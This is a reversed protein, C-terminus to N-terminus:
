VATLPSFSERYSAPTLGTVKRFERTFHPQDAYGCAFGVGAISDRTRLLERSAIAARAMASLRSYTLGEKRLARQLRRTTLGSSRAADTVTHSTM